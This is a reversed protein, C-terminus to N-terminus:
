IGQFIFRIGNSLGYPFISNHTENIGVDKKIQLRQNNFGRLLEVFENLDRPMNWNENIEREGVALYVRIDRDRYSSLKEDLHFLLKDDYWLSPSIIIYGDFLIPKTLLTWATFLGGYSHGTLTRRKSVSYNEEIYPILEREIFDSFEPGGGSYERQIQQFSVPEDSNTPTYDRTRNLRYQNEGAYAIGIVIVDQLHNRQALHDVINKAIAFSYDADLLYLVPHNQESNHYEEPLSVYLKYEVGNSESNLYRVETNPMSYAQNSGDNQADMTQPHVLFLVILFLSIRM